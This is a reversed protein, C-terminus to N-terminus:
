LVLAALFFLLAALVSFPSIDQNTLAAATQYVQSHALERLDDPGKLKLYEAGLNKALEQLFSDDRRSIMDKESITDKKYGIFEWKKNYEPIKGGETSGIGVVLFQIKLDKFLDQSIFIKPKDITQPLSPEHDSPAYSYSQQNEEGDTMIIVTLNEGFLEPEEKIREILSSTALQIPTGSWWAQGWHIWNIIQRIEERSSGVEQPLIRIVFSHKPWYLSGVFTALGLRSGSPLEDILALLSMKAIALRSCPQSNCLYDKVTMSPSSDLFVLFNAHKKPQILTPRSLTLILFILALGLFCFRVLWQWSSRLRSFSQARRRSLFSELRKRLFFHIIIGTAILLAAPILLYLNEPSAFKITEMM